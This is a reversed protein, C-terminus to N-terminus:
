RLPRGQEPAGARHADVDEVRHGTAAEAPSSWWCGTWIPRDPDGQEFEIWVRAGIVPVDAPSSGCPVCPLAWGGAVTGTVDPVVARIRGIRQPDANDLVVGRFKGCFEGCTM